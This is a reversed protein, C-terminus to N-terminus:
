PLQKPPEEGPWHTDVFHAFGPQGAERMRHPGCEQSAVLLAGCVKCTALEDADHNEDAVM